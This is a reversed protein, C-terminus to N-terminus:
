AVSLDQVVTSVAWFDVDSLNATDVGVRGEVTFIASPHHKQLHDCLQFVSAFPNRMSSSSLWSSSLWQLDVWTSHQIERRGWHPRFCERFM